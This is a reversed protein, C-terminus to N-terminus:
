VWRGKEADYVYTDIEGGFEAELQTMVDANTLGDFKSVADCDEYDEYGEYLIKILDSIAEEIMRGSGTAELGDEGRFVLKVNEYKFKGIIRRGASIALMRFIDLEGLKCIEIFDTIEKDSAKSKPDIYKRVEEVELLQLNSIKKGVKEGM